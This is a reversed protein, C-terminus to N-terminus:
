RGTPWSPVDRLSEFLRDLSEGQLYVSDIVVYGGSRFVFISWSGADASSHGYARIVPYGNVESPGVFLVSGGVRGITSRTHGDVLLYECNSGCVELSARLVYDQTGDRNLDALFGALPRSVGDYYSLAARISDRAAWSPLTIPAASQASFQWEMGQAFVHSKGAAMLVTALLLETTRPFTLM